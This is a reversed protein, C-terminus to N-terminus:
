GIVSLFEEPTASTCVSIDTPLEINDYKTRDTDWQTYIKNNELYIFYWADYKSNGKDIYHIVYSPESTLHDNTKETNDIVNLITNTSNEEMTSFQTLVENTKYDLIAIDCMSTEASTTVATTTTNASSVSGACGCFVLTLAFASCVLTILKKTM